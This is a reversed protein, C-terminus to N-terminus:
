STTISTTNMKKSYKSGSTVFKSKQNLFMNFDLAYKYHLRYPFLANLYVTMFFLMKVNVTKNATRKTAESTVALFMKAPVTVVVSPSTKVPLTYTILGVYLSNLFSGGAVSRTNGDYCTLNGGRAGEPGSVIYGGFVASGSFGAM